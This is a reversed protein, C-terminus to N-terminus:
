VKDYQQIWREAKQKSDDSISRGDIPGSEELYQGYGTITAYVARIVSDHGMVHPLQKQKVTKLAETLSKKDQIRRLAYRVPATSNLYQNIDVSLSAYIRVPNLNAKNKDTYEIVDKQWKAYLGYAEVDFKAFDPLPISPGGPMGYRLVQIQMQKNQLTATAAVASLGLQASAEAEFTLIGIRYGAGYTWSDIGNDQPDRQNATAAYDFTMVKRDVSGSITGFGFGLSVAVNVSVYTFNGAAIQGLRDLSDLSPPNGVAKGTLTKLYDNTADPNTINLLILAM